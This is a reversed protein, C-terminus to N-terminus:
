FGGRYVYVAASSLMLAVLCAIITTIIPRADRNTDEKNTAQQSNPQTPNKKEPQSAPNGVSSLMPDRPTAQSAGAKAAPLASTKAAPIPVQTLTANGSPTPHKVPINNVIQANLPTANKPSSPNM